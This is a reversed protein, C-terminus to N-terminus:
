LRFVQYQVMRAKLWDPGADPVVRLTGAAPDLWCPARPPPVMSQVAQRVADLMQLREPTTGGPYRPWPSILWPVLILWPQPRGPPMSCLHRQSVGYKSYHHGLGTHRRTQAM